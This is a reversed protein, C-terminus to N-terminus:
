FGQSPRAKIHMRCPHESPARVRPLRRALREALDRLLDKAGVLIRLLGQAALSPKFLRPWACTMCLCTYHQRKPHINSSSALSTLRM